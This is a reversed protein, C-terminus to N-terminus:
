NKKVTNAAPKKNKKAEEDAKKKMEEEVEKWMCGECSGGCGGMEFGEM